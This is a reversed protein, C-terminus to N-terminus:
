EVLIEAYKQKNEQKKEGDQSGQSYVTKTYNQQLNHDPGLNDYVNQVEVIHFHDKNKFKGGRIDRDLQKMNQHLQDYYQNDARFSPENNVNYSTM